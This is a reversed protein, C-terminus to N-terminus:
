KSSRRQLLNIVTLMVFSVVLMAFALVTAGNYDYCELAHVIQLPLIETERPINGAIFIVSGYEGIGRALAMSFGALISPMLAPLIVRRFCYWRSAGLCAAAEEQSLDLNLLAPQVTRVVFPVGVFCMAVFIGLPTYAVQIGLRELWCGMFGHSGYLGCLAIGAVATPLAFPLDIWMDLFRRGPFVYRSLVWALPVGTVTNFLAALFAQGFSLRFASLTEPSSLMRRYDALPVTTAKLALCAIPILVLLTMYLMGIGFSLAPIGAFPRGTIRKGDMQIM